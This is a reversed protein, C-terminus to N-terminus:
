LRLIFAHLVANAAFIFLLPWMKSLSVSLVRPLRSAMVWNSTHSSVSTGARHLLCSQTQQGYRPVLSIWLVQQCVAPSLLLFILDSLHLGPHWPRLCPLALDGPVDLSLATLAMLATPLPYLALSVGSQFCHERDLVLRM